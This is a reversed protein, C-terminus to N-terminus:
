QQTKTAYDYGAFSVNVVEGENYSYTEKVSNLDNISNEKCMKVISDLTGFIKLSLDYNSQGHLRKVIPM